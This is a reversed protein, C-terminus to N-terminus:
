YPIETAVREMQYRALAEYIDAFRNNANFYMLDIKILQILQNWKLLDKYELVSM